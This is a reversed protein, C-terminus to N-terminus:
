AKLSSELPAIPNFQQFETLLRLLEGGSGATLVGADNIKNNFARLRALLLGRIHVNENTFSPHPPYQFCKILDWDYDAQDLLTVKQDRIMSLKERTTWGKQSPPPYAKDITAVHDHYMDYLRRSFYELRKLGFAECM